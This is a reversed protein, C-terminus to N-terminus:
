WTTVKAWDLLKCRVADFLAVALAALVESGEHPCAKRAHGAIKRLASPHAEALASKGCGASRLVEPNSCSLGRERAVVALRERATFDGLVGDALQNALAELDRRAVEGATDFACPLLEEIGPAEDRSSHPVGLPQTRPHPHEKRLRDRVVDRLLLSVGSEISELAPGSSNIRAFLWDKYRKGSRNRSLQFYTEFWHWAERPEIAPACDAGTATKPLYGSTYRQFRGHVYAKLESQADTGCLDLACTRKWEMWHDILPMAALMKFFLSLDIM